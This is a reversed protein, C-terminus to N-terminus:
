VQAPALPKWNHPLLEQFRNVSHAPIRSLVDRFWAFPEVRNRKCSAIFSRLVAATEGGHDSGFFTWNGRGVAIDRSARETTDWTLRFGPCDRTSTLAKGIGCRSGSSRSPMGCTTLGHGLTAKGPSSDPKQLCATHSARRAAHDEVEIDCVWRKGGRILAATNSLLRSTFFRFHISDFKGSRDPRVRTVASGFPSSATYDCVACIYAMKGPTLQEPLTSSRTSLPRYSETM